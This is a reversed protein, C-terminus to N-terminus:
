LEEGIRAWRVMLDKSDWSWYVKEARGRVKEEVVFGWFRSDFSYDRNDGLVFYMGEPVEAAEMFDRPGGAPPIVKTDQNSSYDENVLQDNVFLQKNRIEIKDGPLGIVRKIFDRPQPKGEDPPFEFVIIDGRSITDVSRDVLIHDGVLLTPIMSAAPIKYAKVVENRIYSTVAEDAILGILLFIAIYVIPRNYSKPQYKEKLRRATRFADVFALVYVVISVLFLAALVVIPLRLALFILILSSLSSLLYFITGKQFQGNYVQGLGPMLLSLLIAIWPKRPKGPREKGEFDFDM